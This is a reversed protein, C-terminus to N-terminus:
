FLTKVTINSKHVTNYIFSYESFATNCPLPALAAGFGLAAGAGALAAAGALTAALGAALGAAAFVALVTHRFELSWRM